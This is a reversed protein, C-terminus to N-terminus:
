IGARGIQAVYSIIRTELFKGGTM